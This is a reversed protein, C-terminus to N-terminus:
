QHKTSFPFGSFPSSDIEDDDSKNVCYFFRYHHIGIIIIIDRACFLAHTGFNPTYVCVCMCITPLLILVLTVNKDRMSTKKKEIQNRVYGFIKM